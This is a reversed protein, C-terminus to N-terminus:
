FVGIGTCPRNNRQAAQLEYGPWPSPEKRDNSSDTVIMDCLLLAASQLDKTARPILISRM